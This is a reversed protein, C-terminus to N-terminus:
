VKGKALDDLTTQQQNPTFKDAIIQERTKPGKDIVGPTGGTPQTTQVQTKAAQAADVAAQTARIRGKAMMRNMNIRDVMLSTVAAPHLGSNKLGMQTVHTEAEQKEEASIKNTTCFNNFSSQAQTEMGRRDVEAFRQDLMKSIRDVVNTTVNESVAVYGAMPNSTLLENMEDQGMQPQQNVTPQQPQVPPQAPAQEPQTGALAALEAQYKQSETQFHARDAELQEVTKEPPTPQEGEPNPQAPTGEPTPVEESATQVPPTGEPTEPGVKSEPESM